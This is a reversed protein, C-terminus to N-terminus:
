VVCSFLVLYTACKNPAYGGFEPEDIPLSWGHRFALRMQKTKKYSRPISDWRVEISSSRASELNLLKVVLTRVVLYTIFSM